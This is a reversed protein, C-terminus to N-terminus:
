DVFRARRLQKNNDGERRQNIMSQALQSSRADEEPDSAGQVQTLSMLHQIMVDPSVRFEKPLEDMGKIMADQAAKSWAQRAELDVKPDASPQGSDGGRRNELASLSALGADWAQQYVNGVANTIVMERVGTLLLPTSLNAATGVRVLKFLDTHAPVQREIFGPGEGARRAHPHQSSNDAKFGNAYILMDQELNGPLAMDVPNDGLFDEIIAQALSENHVAGLLYSEREKSTTGPSTGQLVVRGSPGVSVLLSSGAKISQNSPNLLKTNEVLSEPRVYTYAQMMSLLSEEHDDLQDSGDNVPISPSPPRNKFQDQLRKVMRAAWADSADQLSLDRVATIMFTMGMMPAFRVIDSRYQKNQLVHRPDIGGYRPGLLKHAEDENVYVAFEADLKGDLGGLWKTPQKSYIKGRGAVGWKMQQAAELDVTPWQGDEKRYSPDYLGPAIRQGSADSALNSNDIGASRKRAVLDKLEPNNSVYDSLDAFSVKSGDDLNVFLRNSAWDEMLAGLLAKKEWDELSQIQGVWDNILLINGKSVEIALDNASLVNTGPAFKTPDPQGIWASIKGDPPLDAETIPAYSPNANERAAAREHLDALTTNASSTNASSPAPLNSRDEM